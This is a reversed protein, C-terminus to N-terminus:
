PQIMRALDSERLLFLHPVPEDAQVLVGVGPRSDRLLYAGPLTASWSGGRRTGWLRTNTAGGEADVRAVVQDAVVLGGPLEAIGGQARSGATITRAEVTRGGEQKELARGAGDVEAPLPASTPRASGCEWRVAVPAPGLEHRLLAGGGGRVLGFPLGIPTNGPRISDTLVSEISGAGELRVRHLWAARRVGPGPERRPGYLVWDGDCGGAASLVTFPLGSMEGRLNGDFDFVALRRAHDAFLILSDGATAIAAPFRAERPGGGKALFAARLKGTRDFVRIFPPAEDLVVVHRGSETVRAAVVRALAAGPPGQEAGLGVTVARRGADAFLAAAAPSVDVGAAPVRDRGCGALALLLGAAFCPCLRVAPSRHPPRDRPDTM